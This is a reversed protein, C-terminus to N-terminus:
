RTLQAHVERSLSRASARYTEWPDKKLARLRAPVTEVNFEGPRVGSALEEWTIPTAVPAGQRARTSYASISTSGFGNRLYDVYIKGRRAAKSAHAVFRAPDEGELGEAIARAAERLPEWAGTRRLPTVVHLGKGGTTMVFAALGAEEVRARVMLAAEVVADFPLGEDPDLDIVMRDPRDLRDRRAGWSHLELVGIQVLGLLGALSDVALYTAAEDDDEQPPIEVRLVSQPVGEGAKRQIFCEKEQGRPCRLLTLPRDEIAALIWPAVAQYYAALGRKTIGQDPFVVRDPSTFRVGEIELEAPM